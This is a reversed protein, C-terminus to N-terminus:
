HHGNQSTHYRMATKIPTERIIILTSCIKMHRKAMQIDEKSFYKKLEEAWNKIPNNEQQQTTHATPINQFNLRQRMTQFYKRGTWVNNQKHNGKSHM